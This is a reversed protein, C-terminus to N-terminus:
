RMPRHCRSRRLRGGSQRDAKASALVSEASTLLFAKFALAARSLRKDKRYVVYWQRRLPLGRVDLVALRRLALEMRITHRSLLGIGLGAAVAEKVASNDGMELGISPTVGQQRFFEDANLRTGSGVERAILVERALRLAPIRRATALPHSPAAVVVLEDSLFPHAANPVAEPPRGMVTLDVENHLLRHQVTLRNAVEVSITIKPHRARFAELLAPLVYAGATSVAALALRGRQLGNLEEMVLRAEDVLSCIREAYHLLEGGAETLVITRGVREFFTADLARELERVQASVAPQTLRLAEAARSYSQHRAVMRFVRLQHLTM